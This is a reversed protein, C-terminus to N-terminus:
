PSAGVSGRGPSGRGAPFRRAEGAVLSPSSGMAARDSDSLETRRRRGNSRPDVTARGEDTLDSDGDLGPDGLHREVFLAAGPSPAFYLAYM